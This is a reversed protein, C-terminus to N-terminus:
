THPERRSLMILHDIQEYTPHRVVTVMNKRTNVPGCVPQGNVVNMVHSSAKLDNLISDYHHHAYTIHVIPPSVSRNVHMGAFTCAHAQAQQCEDMRAHTCAHMRAYTCAYMRANTCAHMRAHMRAHKSRRMRAQTCEPMRAHTCAHM